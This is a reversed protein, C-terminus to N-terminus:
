KRVIIFGKRHTDVGFNPIQEIQKMVFAKYLNSKQSIDSGDIEKSSGRVYLGEPQQNKIFDKIIDVVTSLITLLTKLDTKAYQVEDGSINYGANYIRTLNRYKPPFYFQKEIDGEIQDFYVTAVETFDNIDILFKYKVPSVRTWKLPQINAEGIEKVLIENIIPVLLTKYSSM